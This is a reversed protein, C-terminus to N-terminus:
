HRRHTSIANYGSNEQDAEEQPPEDHFKVLPSGNDHYIRVSLAKVHVRMPENKAMVKPGGKVEKKHPRFGM